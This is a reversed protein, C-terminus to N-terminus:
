IENLIKFISNKAVRIMFNIEEENIIYPPMFYIVDGLNRLLLGNKEAERYIKYGIRDKWDFPTKKNKDKVLEIATIMGISRIEGIYKYDILDLLNNYIVKGKHNIMELINEKEFIEFVACGASCAIPNGTYSHSHLFAKKKIYQDYFANYVDESTIVASLPLFGGTLGKSVTVFDPIIDAHHSAMMKGTRGFGSAIEDCILHINNNKTYERLKKLFIPSYISMCNACQLIPEVIIGAFHEKNNELIKETKHFCEANCKDRTLNYECRYCDPGPLQLAKILLPSYTKKYLDLDGVSLAGLTEGHYAGTIYGFLNKDPKNNNYWYHYSMKIAVEIASSGNDAYFVRSLKDNFLSSLNKALIIAPTHTYNAFIVHELNDIQEKIKQSIYENCHGFLNVWWSSIADLIKRGDITELWVGKGKTIHIAPYEEYDKMQSCPHWIHKKELYSLYESMIILM